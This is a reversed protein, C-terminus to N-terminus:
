GGPAFLDPLDLSAAPDLRDWTRDGMVSLLVTGAPLRAAPDLNGVWTRTFRGNKGAEVHAVWPRGTLIARLGTHLVTLRPALGAPPDLAFLLEGGEASPGFPRVAALLAAATAPPRGPTM